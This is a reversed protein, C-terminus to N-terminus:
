TWGFPPADPDFDPDAAEPPNTIFIAAVIFCAWVVIKYGIAM